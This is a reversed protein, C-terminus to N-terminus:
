VSFRFQRGTGFEFGTIVTEDSSDDEEDTMSRPLMAASRGFELGESNFVSFNGTVEPHSSVALPEEPHFHTELSRVAREHLQFGLRHLFEVANSVADFMDKPVSYGCKPCQALWGFKENKGILTYESFSQNCAPCRKKGPPMFLVFGGRMMVINYLNRLAKHWGYRYFWHRTKETPFVYEVAVFDSKQALSYIIYYKLLKHHLFVNKKSMAFLKPTDPGAVERIFSNTISFLSTFGHKDTLLFVAGKNPSPDITLINTHPLSDIRSELRKFWERFRGLPIRVGVRFFVNHRPLKGPKGEIEMYMFDDIRILHRLEQDILPEIFKFWFFPMPRPDVFEDGWFSDGQRNRRYPRPRFLPVLVEEPLGEYIHYSPNTLPEKEEKWQKRLRIPFMKPAQRAKWWGYQILDRFFFFFCDEIFRRPLNHKEAYEWVPKCELFSKRNNVRHDFLIRRVQKVHRAFEIFPQVSIKRRDQSPSEVDRFWPIPVMVNGFVIFDDEEDVWEIEVVQFVRALSKVLLPQDHIKSLLRMTPAVIEEAARFALEQGFKEALGDLWSGFIESWRNWTEEPVHSIM